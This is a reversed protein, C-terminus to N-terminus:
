PGARRHQRAHFGADRGVRASRARRWARIGAPVAPCGNDRSESSRPDRYKAIRPSTPLGDVLGAFAAVAVGLGLLWTSATAFERPDRAHGAVAFVASALRCGIPVSVLVPHLRVRSRVRVRVPDPTEAPETM